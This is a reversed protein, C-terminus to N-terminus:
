GRHDAHRSTVLGTLYSMRVERRLLKGASNKPLPETSVRVESPKKVPGLRERCWAILAESDIAEADQVSVVAVPTEGWKEHPVGFVVVELVRPHEILAHELEAPWINFGGSIIVDEMRDMLTLFGDSDLRGVDGTRIWGDETMRAATAQDDGYIGMMQGPGTIVVQGDKGPPLINGDPDEIRISSNPTARGATALKGTPASLDHHEPGLVTVPAAESQGYLQFMGTGWLGIARRLTAESLPAAGYYITKLSRLDRQRATPHDVLLQIMTPVLFTISCREREILELAAEPEFKPLILQRAGVSIMPWLLNGSGHSYPSIVLETDHRGFPPAVILMENGMAHWNHWSLAIPKPQGTTGASFRIIHVSRQDVEVGPDVAESGALATDYDVASGSGVVGAAAGGRVLVAELHLGAEALAVELAPWAEADVILARSGVRQMMYVHSSTTNHMYLPSRVFGGLAVGTAEEVSEVRNRGLSSVRDGPRLGADAFIMALRCSREYVDAFTLAREGLRVAEDGARYRAANRLQNAFM